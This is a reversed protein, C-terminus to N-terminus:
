AKPRAPALLVAEGEAVVTEGVTAVCALTVRRRDKATVTCTATVADGIRVPAKFALTQAVYVSGAGPLKTGLVASFYGATLMGHAIRTKFPTTAAYAEDFHVPNMDGTAEGFLAIDKETVTRAYSASQGIEIDEAYVTM